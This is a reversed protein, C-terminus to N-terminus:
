LTFMLTLLQSLCDLQLAGHYQFAQVIGFWSLLLLQCSGFDDWNTLFLPSQHQTGVFPQAPLHHVTQHCFLVFSPIIHPLFLCLPLLSSSILHSEQKESYSQVFFPIRIITRSRKRESENGVLSFHPPLLGWLKTKIVQRLGTLSDSSQESM